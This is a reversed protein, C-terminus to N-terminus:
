DRSRRALEGAPPALYFYSTFTFLSSTIPQLGCGPAQGKLRAAERGALEGARKAFTLLLLSSTVPLTRVLPAAASLSAPPVFKCWWCLAGTLAWGALSRIPVSPCTLNTGSPVPIAVECLRM